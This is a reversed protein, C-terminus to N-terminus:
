ILKHHSAPTVTMMFKLSLKKILKSLIKKILANHKNFTKIDNQLGFIGKVVTECIEAKLCDVSLFSV